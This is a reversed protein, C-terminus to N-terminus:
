QKTQLFRGFKQYVNCRFVHLSSLSTRFSLVDSFWKSHQTCKLINQGYSGRPCTHRATKCTVIKSQHSFCILWLKNSPLGQQKLVTWDHLFNPRRLRTWFKNGWCPRSTPTKGVLSEGTSNTERGNRSHWILLYGWCFQQIDGCLQFISDSITHETFHDNAKGAPTKRGKCRAHLLWWKCECEWIAYCKWETHLM